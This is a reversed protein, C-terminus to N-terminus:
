AVCVDFLHSGSMLLVDFELKNYEEPSASMSCIVAPCSPCTSFDDLLEMDQRM